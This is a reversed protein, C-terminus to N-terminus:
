KKAPPKLLEDIATKYKDFPLAGTMLTGNLFVAPTGRVGVSQGKAIDQQVKNKSDQSQMCTKFKGLDVGTSKAVAEYDSETWNQKFGAFVKDHFLWFKGQENACETAQHTRDSGAHMPLPFHRWVLRIKGQYAALVQKLTGELRQCFPCHFDSFEVMTISANEPGIAPRGKLDNFEVKAPPAQPAAQTKPKNFEAPAAGTKIFSDIIQQFKEYPYAGTIETGNIYFTPTGDIGKSKGDALDAQIVRVARGSNLCDNFKQVNLGIQGAITQLGAEDTNGSSAYTKEYFEWFKSQEQACVGAEHVRFSGKGPTESLPFNKFVMRVKDPYNQMVKIMTPMAKKCYGCFFDAYEIITVPANTPGKAPSPSVYLPLNSRVPEAQKPQNGAGVVARYYGISIGAILITFLTGYIFGSFFSNTKMSEQRPKITM